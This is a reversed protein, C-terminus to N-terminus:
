FAYTLDLGSFFAPRSKGDIVSGIRVELPLFLQAPIRLWLPMNYYNVKFLPGLQLGASPVFVPSTKGRSFQLGAEMYSTFGLFRSDSIWYDFNSRIGGKLLYVDSRYDKEAFRGVTGFGYSLTYGNWRDLMSRKTGQNNYEYRQGFLGFKLRFEGGDLYQGQFARSNFGFVMSNGVRSRVFNRLPLIQSAKEAKINLLSDAFVGKKLDTNYPIPILSLPKMGNLLSQTDMKLPEAGAYAEFVEQLSLAVALVIRDPESQDLMGDGYARWVEGRRNVVVSGHASYFDHLAKNNTFSALPSRNVVLHGSSFADELFHDAFGNFLIAHRILTEAKLPDTAKIKGADRALNMALLHVTTYITLANTRSLKKFLEKTKSPDQLKKIWNPDFSNLQSHLDKGYVYFHSMNVMALLAYRFNLAALKSDPAASFGKAMFEEHMSIIQQVISTKDTLEKELLLPDDEHDGSLGNLVGYSITNGGKPSLFGFVQSERETLSNFFFDGGSLGAMASRFHLFAEDGLRKHEGYTFAFVSAPFVLILFILLFSFYSRIM